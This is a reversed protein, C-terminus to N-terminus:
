SEYYQKILYEFAQRGKLHTGFHNSLVGMNMQYCKDATLLTIHERVEESRKFIEANLGIVNIQTYPPMYINYM